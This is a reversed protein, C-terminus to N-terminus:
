LGHPEWQRERVATFTNNSTSSSFKLTNDCITSQKAKQCIASPIPSPRLCVLRKQEGRRPLGFTM